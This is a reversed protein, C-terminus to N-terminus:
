QGIRNCRKRFVRSSRTCDLDGIDHNRVICETGVVQTEGSRIGRQEIRGYELSARRHACHKHLLGIRGELDRFVVLDEGFIRTAVPLEGLQATMAVPQWFRRFYAGGPTGPGVQLLELDPALTSNIAHGDYPGTSWRVEQSM